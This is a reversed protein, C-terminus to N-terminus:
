FPNTNEFQKTCLLLMYFIIRPTETWGYIEDIYKYYAKQNLEHM